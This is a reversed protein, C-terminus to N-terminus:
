KEIGYVIIRSGTGFIGGTFELRNINEIAHNIISSFGSFEKDYGATNWRTAVEGIYFGEAIEELIAVGGSTTSKQFACGNTYWRVNKNVWCHMNTTTTNENGVIKWLAYMKKLPKSLPVYISSTEDAIEGTDYILKYQEMKEVEQAKAMMMRRRLM